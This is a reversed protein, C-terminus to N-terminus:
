FAFCEPLETRVKNYVFEQMFKLLATAVEPSDSRPVIPFARSTNPPHTGDRHTPLRMTFAYWEEAARVFVPFHQPYLAEFLLTYARRNNTAAAIGRLDRCVGILAQKVDEQRFPQASGLQTLVTLIPKMFADFLANMDEMTSFILRALTTHFVTRQRTNAPVLLFAFHEGTHHQVLFKVTDLDLLMRSSSYSSAMDLFLQLTQGIVESDHSWYKLNNGIQLLSPSPNSPAHIMCQWQTSAKRSM